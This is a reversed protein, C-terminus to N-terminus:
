GLDEVIEVFLQAPTGEGFGLFRADRYFREVPYERSFGYGGYIQVADDAARLAARGAVLRAERAAQAAPQGADRRTAALILLARAAELDATSRALREALAGFRRIPQGFQLREGSYRFAHAIAGRGLGVHLAAVLLRLVLLIDRVEDPGGIRRGLAERMELRGLGFGRLGLTPTHKHHVSPGPELLVLASGAPTGAVVLHCSARGPFPVLVKVGDVAVAEGAAVARVPSTPDLDAVALAGHSSGAGLGELRAAESAGASRLAAIAATQALLVGALGGSCRALAEVAVVAPLVGLGAGGQAEPVLIGFLGAGALERVLDEPHAGSQDLAAAADAFPGGALARVSEQILQCEEPLLLDAPSPEM